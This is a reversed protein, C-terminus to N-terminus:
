ESSSNSREQQKKCLLDVHHENLIDRPYLVLSGWSLFILGGKKDMRIEIMHSYMGSKPLGEYVMRNHTTTLKYTGNQANFFPVCHAM